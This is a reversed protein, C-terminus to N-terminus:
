VSGKTFDSAFGSRRKVFVKDSNKKEQILWGRTLPHSNMICWTSWNPTSKPPTTTMKYAELHFDVTCLEFCAIIWSIDCIGGKKKSIECNGVAENILYFSPRTAFLHELCM